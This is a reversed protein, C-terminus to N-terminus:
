APHYGIYHEDGDMTYPNFSGPAYDFLGNEGGNLSSMNNNNGGHINRFHRGLPTFKYLVGSTMSTVVVGLFINGFTKVRNSSHHELPSKDSFGTSETSLLSEFEGGSPLWQLAPGNKLEASQNQGKEALKAKEASKKEQMEKYCVVDRIYNSPDYEKCKDYFDPCKNKDGKSCPEKFYKYLDIIEELSDYYKKCEEDYNTVYGKITSYDVFYDYLKKRKQWDNNVINTFPICKKYKSKNLEDLVFNNWVLHLQGWALYINTTDDSGFIKHLRTYVAYNLLACVDYPASQNNSIAYNTKLFKLLQRCLRKVSSHTNYPPNLKNCENIYEKSSPHDYKFNYYFKESPLDKSAIGFLKSLGTVRRLNDM